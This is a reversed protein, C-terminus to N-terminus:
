FAQALQLRFLELQTRELGLCPPHRRQDLLQNFKLGSSGFAHSM